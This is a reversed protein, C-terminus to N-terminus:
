TTIRDEQHPHDLLVLDLSVQSTSTTRELVLCVHADLNVDSDTLLVVDGPLLSSLEIGGVYRAQRKPWAYKLALYYLILQATGDDWCQARQLMPMERMGFRAQSAKCLASGLVRLDKQTTAMWPLVTSGPTIGAGTTMAEWLNGSISTLTRRSGWTDGGRLPRYDITFSNYVPQDWVAIPGDRQVMQIDANLLAVADQATADWKLPAFWLGDGSSVGLVPLDALVQQDLWEIANVREGIYGDVKFRDLWAQAAVMRSEDIKVGPAFYDLLFRAIEGAGWMVNGTYPSNLGGGWGSENRFGVWLDLGGTQQFLTDVHSVTTGLGDTTTSVSLDTDSWLPDNDFNYITVQAAALKGVAFIFRGAQVGPDAPDKEVWAAPVAPEALDAAAGPKPHHGPFGFIVPYIYGDFDDPLTFVAPTTRVPWTDDNVISTAAPLDVAFKAADDVISFTLPEGPEGYEAGESEGSIYTDATELDDGSFHLRLDVRRLDLAIGRERVKSWDEVSDIGVSLARRGLFRTSGVELPQLGPEYRYTIGANTTVDVRDTAFRYVRGGVDYDLLWFAQRKTHSLGPM